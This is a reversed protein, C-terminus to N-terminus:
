KTRFGRGHFRMNSLLFGIEEDNEIKTDPQFPLDAFWFSDGADSWQRESLNLSSVVVRLFGPFRLLMLKVHM